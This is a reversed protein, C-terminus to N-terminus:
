ESRRYALVSKLHDVAEAIRRYCFEYSDRSRGYPDDIEPGYGSRGGHAGLLWIKDAITGDMELLTDVHSKEMAFIVDSDRLLESTVITSRSANLEIGHEAAVGVMVPDAPRGVEQHFGASVVSLGSDEAYSGLLVDALASRNINGYCMFLINNAGAIARAVDGRRWARKQRWLFFKEGILAPVRHYYSTIIDGIDVLGPMPDRLRQVDFRHRPSLFLGLERFIAWGNPIDAIKTEPGRRVVAEYWYLDSSLKRCYVHPKYPKCPTIEGNLELDLLMSPFDAGAADALPLSGWFRGNIEMLSFRKTGPEWKFEVMAVGNWELAAMLRESAELLLPEIPESKRLSSGGGTLPVEHLRLHQFAYAVKGQQAILEIGVGKGRFYEQLLVPGFKLAHECGALLGIEDFAYSVKLQSSGGDKTGISRTPKLVVPYSVALLHGILEERSSVTVGGPVPVGVREALAMTQEKDLVLELSAASSMAIRVHGFLDRHSSIPVLSRETVPIVLDYDLEKTHRVLWQLFDDEASLPDPYLFVSEISNSYGTIPRAVSSATDVICGRRSLSRSITLAPVMDADLM